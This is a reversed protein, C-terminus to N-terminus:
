CAELLLLASLFNPSCSLFRVTTQLAASLFEKTRSHEIFKGCEYNSSACSLAYCASCANNQVSLVM